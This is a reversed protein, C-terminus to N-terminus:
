SHGAISWLSLRTLGLRRRAFLSRLDLRRPSSVVIKQWTFLSGWGWKWAEWVIIASRMPMDPLAPCKILRRFVEQVKLRM